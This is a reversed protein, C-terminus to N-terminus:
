FNTGLATQNTAYQQSQDDVLVDLHHLMELYWKLLKNKRTYDFNDSITNYISRCLVPQFSKPIKELIEYIMDLLNDLLQLNVVPIMSFLVLTLKMKPKGKPKSLYFMIKQHVQQLCYLVLGNDAETLNSGIAILCEQFSEVPTISPYNELSVKLYQPIIELQFANTRSFIGAFLSHSFKNIRENKCEIGLFILPILKDRLIDEPLKFSV